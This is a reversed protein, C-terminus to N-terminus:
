QPKSQRSHFEGIESMGTEENLRSSGAQQKVWEDSWIGQGCRDIDCFDLGIHNQYGVAM